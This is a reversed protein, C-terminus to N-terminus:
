TCVIHLLTRSEPIVFMETLNTLILLTEYMISPDVDLVLGMSARQQLQLFSHLAQTRCLQLSSYSHLMRLISHKRAERSVSCCVDERECGSIWQCDAVVACAWGAPAELSRPSFCGTMPQQVISLDHIMKNLDKRQSYNNKGATLTRAHSLLKTQIRRSVAPQYSLGWNKSEDTM